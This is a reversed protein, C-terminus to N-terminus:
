KAVEDKFSETSVPSLFNLSRRSLKYRMSKILHPKVITMLKATEKVSFKLNYNGSNKKELKPKLGFNEKLTKLLLKFEEKSFKSLYIYATKDRKYYYGDDMYWIALTFPDDLLIKIDKPVIKQNMSYFKDRLKGFFPSSHSQCRYYSYSKKWIPNFRKILKPRDQMYRKLEEYKWFIYDKQKVSHELRLRANRKGVKQLYGDGLVTGIVIQKQRLTM